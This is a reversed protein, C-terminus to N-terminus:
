SAANINNKKSIRTVESNPKIKMTSSHIPDTKQGKLFIVSALETTEKAEQLSAGIRNYVSDLLCKTRTKTTNKIQKPRVTKM